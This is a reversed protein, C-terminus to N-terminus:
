RDASFRLVCAVEGAEDKVEMRWDQSEWFKGELDKLM